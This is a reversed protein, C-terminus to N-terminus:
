CAPDTRIALEVGEGAMAEILKSSRRLVGNLSIVDPQGVQRTGFAALRETSRSAAAAAQYIEEMATRAPSYEGFQRLLHDAQSRIIALLNTYDNSVGAALRGVAEMKQSQRLQREEWHRVSVDRLTLVAGLAVGSAKVPAATGEVSMERGSRSILRWSRDLPTPQDRLIALALPDGVTEGGIQDSMAGSDAEILRVVTGVPQAQAEAQTWGTLTEASRNLLRVMGHPDTVIVGDAVSELITRQWAEREELIREMRHKYLAVEISANLSAPSLPKVIYGFPGAKKARDLTPRDSHATLFVVPVHYRDRIETAVEVGDRTGDIRIDMLVLDASGAHELAEDATGVTAVVQHGLAQLRSGIDHAILGEDEVVLVRTPKSQM